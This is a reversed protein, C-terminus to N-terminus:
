LPDVSAFLGVLHATHAEFGPGSPFHRGPGHPGALGTVLGIVVLLAIIVATIVFIRVWRPMPPPSGRDGATDTSAAPEGEVDSRPARDPM